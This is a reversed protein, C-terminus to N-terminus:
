SQGSQETSARKSVCALQVTLCRKLQRMRFARSREGFLLYILSFISESNNKFFLIL